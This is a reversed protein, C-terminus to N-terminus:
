QTGLKLAETPDIKAIRSLMTKTKQKFVPETQNAYGTFVLKLGELALLPDWTELRYTEIDDLILDLHPMTMDVRKCAILTKCLAMRWMLVEKQSLSKKFEMQFLGVAELWKKEKILKQAQGQIHIPLDTEGEIVGSGKQITSVDKIQGNGPRLGQLWLRTETNAFPMGDSFCLDMLGPLRYIISGTEHCVADHAAHYDEGLRFLAEAVWRNLDFWFIFQSLRQEAAVIFANWQAKEMLDMLGQQIQPAPPQILTQGNSAPPLGSAQMWAASRRLRYALPNKLDNELLFAAAQRIRQIGASVAKQADPETTIPTRDDAVPAIKPASTQIGPESRTTGQKTMDIAPASVLDAKKPAISFTQEIIRQIPRLLPPEPLIEQLLTDIQSLTNQIADLTEPAVPGPKIIKMATESKEIWWEIAGMRGRMRKKPPFLDEWYTRILDNLVMLGDALGDWQRIHIQSVALYCAVLLDKSKESLIKAALDSVKKWNIGGSASPISIKDVETQLLDYEPEYRIDSGTPRDPTIPDKGLSAINM